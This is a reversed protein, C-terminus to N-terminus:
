GDGHLQTISPYSKRGAGNEHWPTDEGEHGATISHTAATRENGTGRRLRRISVLNTRKERVTLRPKDVFRVRGAVAGVWIM